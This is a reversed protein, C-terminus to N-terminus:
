RGRGATGRHAGTGHGHGYSVITGKYAMNRRDGLAADAQAITAADKEVPVSEGTLAAEEIRMRATDTLRLDAPVMNGAELLVVDGPVLERAPITMRRGDRIVAAMPAAIRRLAAMAKAARYEQTFGIIANLVLIAVIVLTDAIDGIIGSLVAAALLVLIMFDAFQDLLIRLPGRRRGEDLENLGSQELRVAAEGSQLGEDPNSALAASVEAASMCHWQREMGSQANM